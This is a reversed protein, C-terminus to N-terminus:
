IGNLTPCRARGYATAQMGKNPRQKMVCSGNVILKPKFCLKVSAGVRVFKSEAPYPLATLYIRIQCHVSLPVSMERSACVQPLPHVM